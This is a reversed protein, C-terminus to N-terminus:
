RRGMMSRIDERIGPMVDLTLEWANEDHYDQGPV